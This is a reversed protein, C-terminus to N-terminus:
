RLLRPKTDSKELLFKLTAHDSFIIIKSGLLYSRFKDLAFVITLLEKKITINNATSGQIIALSNQKLNQIFRKYFGVHGLFSRVMFHCKEFNLVLNTEICRNLVRSLSELCADFSPDYVMFDDMFAEMFSGRFPAEPTAYASLCGLIPLPTSCAPSPPRINIKALRELVQDIFLLLFHEKHTIVSNQRPP